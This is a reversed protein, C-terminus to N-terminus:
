KQPQEQKESVSVPAGPRVRGLGTVIVRDGEELGDLVEWNDGVQVGTVIPQVYALGNDDIMYVYSSEASKMVAIQPVLTYVKPKVVTSIVTVYDGPVLMNDPNAFSARLTITGATEDVKNDVFEIKGSYSYMEGDALRLEIKVDSLNEKGGSLRKFKIYEHSKLTYNAYIPDSSVITALPGTQTNVLNGETIYIRGIKGDIPSVIKTYGLNRKANALEAQRMEYMAKNQDRTAVANDYYSKSVYDNKVLEEARKLEKEANILTAQAQRAAAEAQSVALSYERPEIQFLVQGAKVFAGEKFYRRELWGNIRAVVDVSYKAQIRGVSESKDYVEKKVVDGLEVVAPAMMQKRAANEAMGATIKQYFIMGFVVVIILFAILRIRGKRM